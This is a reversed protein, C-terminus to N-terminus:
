NSNIDSETLEELLMAENRTLKLYDIEPPISWFTGDLKDYLSNVLEAHNIRYSLWNAQEKQMKQLIESEKHESKYHKALRIIECDWHKIVEEYAEKIDVTSVAKDLKIKLMHDLPHNDAGWGSLIPIRLGTKNDVLMSGEKDSYVIQLNHGKKFSNVIEYDHSNMKTILDRGDILKLSGLPDHNDAFLVEESYIYVYRNQADNRHHTESGLSLYLLCDYIIILYYIKKCHM